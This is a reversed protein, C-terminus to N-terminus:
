VDDFLGRPAPGGRSRGFRPLGGAEEEEEEDSYEGGDNLGGAGGNFGVRVSTSPGFRENIEQSLTRHMDRETSAGSGLASYALTADGDRLLGDNPGTPPAGAASTAARYKNALTANNNRRIAAEDARQRRRKERAILDRGAILRACFWNM